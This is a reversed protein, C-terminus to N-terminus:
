KGFDNSIDPDIKEAAAIDAKAGAQDGTQRKALGRGYLSSAQRPDIALAASYDALAQDFQTAKFHVFARSDIAQASRPQAEIAANCDALAGALRGLIAGFWCRNNLAASSKPQLQVAGDADAFAHDYDGISQYLNARFMYAAFNKSDKKIPDSAYQIAQNADRLGHDRDGSKLYLRSRLALAALNKTDLRLADSVDQIALGTQGKAAYLQGRVLYGNPLAANAEITMDADAIAQELKGSSAYYQSRALLASQNKPDLRVAQNFDSLARDGDSKMQYLGGRIVYGLAYNPYLKLGQNLAAMAGDYDARTLAADATQFQDMANTMDLPDPKSADVAGDGDQARRAAIDGRATTAYLKGEKYAFYLHLNRLEHMGLILDNDGNSMPAITLVPNLFTIDGMALSRFRYRYQQNEDNGTGGSVPEMGPSQPTLDFFRSATRSNLFTESAGTDILARIEKGNLVVPITLRQDREVRLEAEAYDQHPWYVVRGRCHQSSLLTVSNSVPDIEVDFAHLWNAGLTGAFDSYGQPAVLFDVKQAKLGGFQISPAQVIQTMPAGNLGLRATFGAPRIKFANAVSPDLMSWFGGTDLLMDHPKDDILVSVVPSGDDTAVMPLEFYRKVACDDAAAARCIVLVCVAFFFARYKLSFFKSINDPMATASGGRSFDLTLRM